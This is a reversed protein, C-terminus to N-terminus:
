RHAAIETFVVPAVWRRLYDRLREGSRPPRGPDITFSQLIRLMYEVLDDLAADDLGLDSWDVDLGALIAHGFQVCADSTIGTSAKTFDHVLMVQIARDEPLWELTYALSEVLAEIPDTIGTLHDALIDLFQLGSRTAAAELLAGAGPFYNYVTQRSVGLARAVDAIRMDAGRAEIADDAADLIRTIAEEDSSPQAGGWGHTRM